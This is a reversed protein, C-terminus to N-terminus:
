TRHDHAARSQQSQVTTDTTDIYAFNSTLFMVVSDSEEVQTLAIFHFMTM